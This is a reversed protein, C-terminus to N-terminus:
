SSAGAEEKEPLRLMSFFDEHKPHVDDEVKITHQAVTQYGFHEYLAVHQHGNCELYCPISEADALESIKRMLKGFLKKGQHDPHVGAAPIYYHPGPVHTVHSTEIIKIWANMRKDAMKCLAKINAAKETYLAPVKKLKSAENYANYMACQDACTSGKPASNFRRAVMVAALTEGQKVGLIIGGGKQQHVSIRMMFDFYDARFRELDTGIAFEPGLCWNIGLEPPSSPTGAFAKGLLEIAEAEMEKPVEFVESEGKNAKYFAERTAPDKSSCCGM